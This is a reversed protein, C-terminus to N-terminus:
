YRKDLTKAAGSRTGRPADSRYRVALKWADGDRKWCDVIFRAHAGGTAQAGPDIAQFSVIAVTGFDHVAMQEIRPAERPSARAERVWADRAVPVGPAAGVRMEFSPDLMDDLASVDKAHAKSVLAAELESFQKVLRTVTPIRSASPPPQALGPAAGACAAIVLVRLCHRMV